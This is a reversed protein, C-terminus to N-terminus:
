RWRLIIIIINLLRLVRTCSACAPSICARPRSLAACFHEPQQKIAQGAQAAEVGQHGAKRAPSMGALCLTVCLVEMTGQESRQKSGGCVHLGDRFVAVYSLLVELGRLDEERFVAVYSLLVELGRLDEERFVAM